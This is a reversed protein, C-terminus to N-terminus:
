QQSTTGRSGCNQFVKSSSAPNEFKGGSKLVVSGGYPLVINNARMFSGPTVPSSSNDLLGWHRLAADHSGVTTKCVGMSGALGRITMDCTTSGSRLSIIRQYTQALGIESSKDPRLMFSLLGDM